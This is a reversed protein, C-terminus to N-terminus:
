GQLAPVCADEGNRLNNWLSSDLYKRDCIVFQKGESRVVAALAHSATGTYREWGQSWVLGSHCWAIQM